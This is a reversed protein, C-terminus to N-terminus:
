LTIWAYTINAKWHQIFAHLLIPSYMFAHYLPETDKCYCTMESDPCNISYEKALSYLPDMINGYLCMGQAPNLGQDM